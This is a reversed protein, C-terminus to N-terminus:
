SRFLNKPIDKLHESLLFIDHIFKCADM